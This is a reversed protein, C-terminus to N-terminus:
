SMSEIRPAAATRDPAVLNVYENATIMNSVVDFTSSKKGIINQRNAEYPIPAKSMSLDIYPPARLDLFMGIIPEFIGGSFRCKVAKLIIFTGTYAKLKITL